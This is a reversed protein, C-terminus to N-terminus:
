TFYARNIARGLPQEDNAYNNLEREVWSLLEQINNWRYEAANTSSTNDYLWSHYGIHALLKM